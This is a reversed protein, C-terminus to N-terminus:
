FVEFLRVINPHDLQRMIDIETFFRAKEKTDLADKRIIKVARIAGTKKNSCKRVEGFGGLVLLAFIKIGSGLQPGFSYFDRFRGKNESIFDSQTVKFDELKSV